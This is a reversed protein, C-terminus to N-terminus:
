RYLAIQLLFAINLLLYGGYSYSRSGVENAYLRSMDHRQM